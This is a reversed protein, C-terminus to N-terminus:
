TACMPPEAGLRKRLARYARVWALVDEMSSVLPAIWRLWAKAGRINGLRLFLFQQHDKCFGPITNGQINARSKSEGQRGPRPPGLLPIRRSQSKGM